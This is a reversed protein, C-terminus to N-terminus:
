DGVAGRVCDESVGGEQLGVAEFLGSRERRQTVSNVRGCTYQTAHEVLVEFSESLGDLTGVVFDVEVACGDDDGAKTPVGDVGIARSGLEVIEGFGGAFM